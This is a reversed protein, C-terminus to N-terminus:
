RGGREREADRQMASMLEGRAWGEPDDAIKKFNDQAEHRWRTNDFTAESPKPEKSAMFTAAAEYDGINREVMLKELREMADDTFGYDDQTKKRVRAFHEDDAAKKKAAEAADREAREDNLRKDVKAEIDFDPIQLNPYKRKILAKADKNLQPDNYISEVFDAVQKRGQLFNYEEDTVQRPM